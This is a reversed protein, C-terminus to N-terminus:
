QGERNGHRGDCQCGSEVHHWVTREVLLVRLPVLIRGRTGGLEPM